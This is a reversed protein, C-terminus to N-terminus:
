FNWLKLTRRPLAHTLARNPPTKHIMATVTHPKKFM